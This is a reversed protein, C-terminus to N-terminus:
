RPARAPRVAPRPRREHRAVEPWRRPGGKTFPTLDAAPPSAKAYSRLVAVDGDSLLLKLALPTAGAPIRLLTYGDEEALTAGKGVLAVATGVPAVRMRLDRASKSVNLTRTYVVKEGPPLEYAPM